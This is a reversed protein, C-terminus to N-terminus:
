LSRPKMREQTKLIENIIHYEQKWDLIRREPKKKRCIRKFFSDETKRKNTFKSPDEGLEETIKLKWYEVCIM